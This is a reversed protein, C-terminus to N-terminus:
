AKLPLKIKKNINIDYNHYTVVNLKNWLENRIKIMLKCEFIYALKMVKKPNLYSSMTCSKM